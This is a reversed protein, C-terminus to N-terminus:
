ALHLREEVRRRLLAVVLDYADESRVVRGRPRERQLHLSHRALQYAKCRKSAAMLASTSRAGSRLLRTILARPPM